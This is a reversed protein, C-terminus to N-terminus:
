YYVDFTPGYQRHMLNYMICATYFYYKHDHRKHRFRDDLSAFNKLRGNITEHRGAAAGKAKKESRCYFNEPRRITPHRYGRDAEVKEGPRLKPVVHQTYIKQDPWAGAPFPGQVLVIEGTQICTAIGYRLGAKKFKHGYWCEDFPYNGKNKNKKKPSNIRCDVGDHYTLCSRGKDKRLRNEWKIQLVFLPICISHYSFFSTYLFTQYALSLVLLLSIM